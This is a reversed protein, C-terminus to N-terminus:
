YKVNWGGTSGSNGNQAPPSATTAPKGPQAPAFGTYVNGQAPAAPVNTNAPLPAYGPPPSVPQLSQDQPTQANGGPNNKAAAAAAKQQDMMQQKLRNQSAQKLNAVKNDFDSSSMVSSPAKSSPTTATSGSGFDFVSQAFIFNNLTFALILFVVLKVAIIRMYRSGAFDLYYHIILRIILISGKKKGGL